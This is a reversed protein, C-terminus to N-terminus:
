QNLFPCMVVVWVTLLGRLVKPWFNGSIPLRVQTSQRFASTCVLTSVRHSSIQKSIIRSPLSLSSLYILGNGKKEVGTQSSSKNSADCLARYKGHIIIPSLCKAEVHKICKIYVQANQPPAGVRKGEQTFVCSRGKSVKGKVLFFIELALYINLSWPKGHSWLWSELQSQLWSWVMVM